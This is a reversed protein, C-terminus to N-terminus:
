ISNFNKTIFFLQDLVLVLYKSLIIHVCLIWVSRKRVFTWNAGYSKLKHIIGFKVIFILMLIDGAFYLSLGISDGSFVISFKFDFAIMEVDCQNKLIEIWSHLLNKQMQMAITQSTKCKIIQNKKGIQTWLQTLFVVPEM